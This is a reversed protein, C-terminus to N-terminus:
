TRAHEVINSYVKNGEVTRHAVTVRLTKGVLSEVDMMGDHPQVGLVSTALQKFLRLGNPHDLNYNQDVTMRRDQGEIIEYRVRVAADGDPTASQVVVVHEGESPLTKDPDIQDYFNPVRVLKPM